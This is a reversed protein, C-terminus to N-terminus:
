EKIFKAKDIELRHIEKKYLNMEEDLVLKAKQFEQVM